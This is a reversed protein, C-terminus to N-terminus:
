AQKSGARGLDGLKLKLAKRCNQGILRWWIAYELKEGPREDFVNRPKM